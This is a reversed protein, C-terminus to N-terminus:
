SAPSAPRSALSAAADAPLSRFAFTSLSAIFAVGAFAWGFDHADLAVRGHMLRSTDLGLAAISVGLSAALQQCLQALSTAGGMESSEIDAYAIANVATFQLSRVFGAFLLVGAMVIAPTSVTFLAPAAALAAAILGNWILVQRFGFRALLPQAVFKMAIAGAGAAFTTLGSAVPSFAFGLQLMLPLLFPTAAVGIRFPLAGAVSVRFTPRSLLKLDLLPKETRAAHRLYFALAVVGCALMALDVWLSLQGVGILTVTSDTLSLGVGILAFGVGDFRVRETESFDPVFRWALAVGLLGIPVNIWFAWHWTAVTVVIGGLPPGLLPGLLAPVTFWTMAAVLGAKPVSKLMVLRGVPVMMAGGMGQLLRCIVLEPLTQSLGCLASAITFMLVAAIFVRRSGFRDAVWGSVPVFVALALLYSTLALKMHVPDAGLDHAMSPLATSLVTADLNEMFLATAVILPVAPIIM